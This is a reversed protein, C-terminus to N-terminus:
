AVSEVFLSPLLEAFSAEHDFAQHLVLRLGQNWHFMMKLRVWTMSMNTKLLNMMRMNTSSIVKFKNFKASFEVDLEMDPEVDLEMDPEVDLEADEVVAEVQVKPHYGIVEVQAVIIINIVAVVALISALIEKDKTEGAVGDIRRRKVYASCKKSKWILYYPGNRTWTDVPTFGTFIASHIPERTDM